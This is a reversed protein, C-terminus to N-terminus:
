VSGIRLDFLVTVSLLTNQDSHQAIESIDQFCQIFMFPSYKGTSSTCSTYSLSGLVRSAPGSDVMDSIRSESRQFRRGVDEELVCFTTREPM